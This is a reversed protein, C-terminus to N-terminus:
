RKNFDLRSPNKGEAGAAKRGPTNIEATLSTRKVDATVPSSGAAPASHMDVEDNPMM